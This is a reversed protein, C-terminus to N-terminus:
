RNRLRGFPGRKDPAKRKPGNTPRPDACQPVRRKYLSRARRNEAAKNFRRNGFRDSIRRLRNTLRDAKHPERLGEGITILPTRILDRAM